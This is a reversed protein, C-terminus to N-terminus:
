RRAKAREAAAKKMALSSKMVKMAVKAKMAKM